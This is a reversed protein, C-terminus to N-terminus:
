TCSRGAIESCVDLCASVEEALVLSPSRRIEAMLLSVFWHLPWDVSCGECFNLGFFRTQHITVKLLFLMTKLQDLFSSRGTFFAIMKTYLSFSSSSAARSLPSSSFPIPDLTPSAPSVLLLSRLLAPSIPAKHAVTEWLRLRRHPAISAM